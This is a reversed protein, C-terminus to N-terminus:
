FEAWEDAGAAAPVAQQKPPALRAAPAATRAPLPVSGRAPSTGSREHGFATLELTVKRTADVFPTNGTLMKLAQDRQGANCAAAVDAACVHFERHSDVIRTFRPVTSWQKRGAGHLWLGLDCCDDRRIREVDLPEGKLAANRLTVKWAAHKAIWTKIDMDDSAGAGEGGQKGERRLGVAEAEALSKEGPEMRFVRMMSTIALIQDDLGSASAALQEVMAANQQTIADMHSVADNIQSIGARQESASTGIEGLLSNVSKVAELAAKMRDRADVTQLHGRAIRDTADEILTKIERAAEATRQALTRVEAAVVAFGRGQEGARAAEVAANLALINTQFAVGEIVQIIDRIRNSSQHIEDMASSAALVAEHSRNASDTTEAGIKAGKVAAAASQQVTGTIQEMSAATEELSSAQSETRQSLDQNGSAIEHAAGRVNEIEGRVDAIVARLNVAMQQLALQIDGITGNSDRTPAHTLDAAALSLCDHLVIGLPREWLRRMSWATTLAVLAVAAASWPMTLLAGAFACAASATALMAVSALGGLAQLAGGGRRALSSLLGRRIAQGRQLALNGGEAQSQLTAYLAQAAEIQERSPETRVSLYGVIREGERMPTANAVVWYHDGNKRRNKVMGTWPLGSEITTWMDRFAEPPMDPHRVISHAQGLLEPRAFGSAEVFAANCYTIRGKLDTVSVLSRGTPFPYEKGTVPLNSRM